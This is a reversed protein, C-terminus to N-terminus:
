SDDNESFHPLVEKEGTSGRLISASVGVRIVFAHLATRVDVDLIPQLLVSAIEEYLERLYIQILGDPLDAVSNIILIVVPKWSNVNRNKIGAEMTNFHTLIHCCLPTLLSTIKDRHISRDGNEDAVMKFLTSIYAAASACEQKLLNPLHRMFGMRFLTLRLETDENFAEAFRYSREFCGVLILLHKSSIAHYIRDDMSQGGGIKANKDNLTPLGFTVVRSTLIEHLTELVLLHLVCKLIIGQFDSQEPKPRGTLDVVGNVFVLANTNQVLSTVSSMHRAMSESGLDRDLDNQANMSEIQNDPVELIEAHNSEPPAVVGTPVDPIQARYDFFLLTPTTIAFLNVFTKCIKDWLQDDFKELNSDIFQHLCTSGIRALTENEQTMCATLISLLGEVGVAEKLTDFEASFLEVLLRLAQILTTSLWVTLDEREDIKGHEQRSLKLDDFIPFIVGKAIVEWSDRSFDRAHAKLIDFLYRLGRARVELDCKMTVEYFGFLVPFIFRFRSEESNVVSSILSNAPLNASSTSSGMHLEIPIELIKSSSERLLAFIQSITQKLLEVSQLSVSIKEFRNNKCFTVLSTTYDTFAANIIMSEFHSRFILKTLDFALSVVQENKDSAAKTFAGFLTKWGSKIASSKGQIMQHMCTLAMDKTKPDKANGLVYEFPRLFDRQFKFNPLEDLELFKMALQRLKDLAFLSVQSNKHCAVQNFHAGLIAWLQSWEVRIRNMNYYSIEVLRQLCYMRPHEATESSNIEDWSVLCLAKVFGLIASGSLKISSTFIKDVTIMMKQSSAVAVVEDSFKKGGNSSNISERRKTDTSLRM